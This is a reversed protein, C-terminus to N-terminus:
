PGSSWTKMCKSGNKKATQGSRRKVWVDRRFTENRIFDRKAELEARSSLNRFEEYLDPPVALDVMNLFLTACGAFKLGGQEM